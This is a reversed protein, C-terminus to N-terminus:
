AAALDRGSASHPPSCWAPVQHEQSPWCGLTDMSRRMRDVRRVEVMLGDQEGEKTSLTPVDNVQLNLSLTWYIKM